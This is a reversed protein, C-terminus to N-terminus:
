GAAEAIVEEFFICVQNIDGGNQISTMQEQLTATLDQMRDPNRAAITQLATAVEQSQAQIIEASCADQAAAVSGLGLMAACLSVRFM